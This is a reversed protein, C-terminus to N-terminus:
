TPEDAILLSPELILARAISVRQRQGGSLEHPLRNISSAPLRVMELARAVRRTIEIRSMGGALQLPEGISWGVTRRPNLSSAPDQFVLGVRAYASRRQAAGLTRPDIGDLELTRAQVPVLGALAKGWT